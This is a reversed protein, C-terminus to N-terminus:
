KVLIVRTVERKGCFSHFDTKYQRNSDCIFQKTKLKELHWGWKNIRIQAFSYINFVNLKLTNKGIKFLKLIANAVKLYFERLKCM